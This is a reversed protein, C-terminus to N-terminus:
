RQQSLIGGPLHWKGSGGGKIRLVTCNQPEGSVWFVTEPLIRTIHRDLLANEFEVRADVLPNSAAPVPSSHLAQYGLGALVTLTIIGVLLVVKRVVWM